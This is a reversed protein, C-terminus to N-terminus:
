LCLKVWSLTETLAISFFILTAFLARSMVRAAVPAAPIADATVDKDKRSNSWRMSFEVASSLAYAAEAFYLVSIDM